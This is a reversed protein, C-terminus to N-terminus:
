RVFNSLVAYNSQWNIALYCLPIAHTNLTKFNQLFTYALEYTSTGTHTHAKHTHTCRCMTQCPYCFCVHVTYLIQEQWGSQWLATGLFASSSHTHTRTCLKIDSLEICSYLHVVALERQLPMHLSFHNILNITIRWGNNHSHIFIRIIIQMYQIYSKKHLHEVM